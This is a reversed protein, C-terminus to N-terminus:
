ILLVCKNITLFIQQIWRNSLHLTRLYLDAATQMEVLREQTTAAQDAGAAQAAIQLNSINVQQENGLNQANNAQQAQLNLTAAQQRNQLNQMTTQQQQQASLMTADQTFQSQMVNMQQAMQATQSASTQRNALNAMRLQMSQTAQTLNAQQENTLNQAARQQLAQANSQAIPMASQIIANFLSDRGVTSASLGRAAMQNQVASVAPRAWIPTVGEDIGALLTEMQSSVLAETPLAAIAAQVEVPQTDVQATVSAPDEVIAASINTPINGVEAVMSAAAGKAETGTVARRMSADYGLTTIIQAAEGDTASVGTIAERQQKEAEPTAALTIQQGTVQDVMSKTDMTFDQAQAQAATEQAADRQATAVRNADTFEPGAATATQTVTEQAAQTPDVTGATAATMPTADVTQQLPATTATGATTTVPPPTVAATTVDAVNAPEAMKQVQTSQIDPNAYATDPKLQQGRSKIEDISKKKEQEPDFYTPKEAMKKNGTDKDTDQQPDNAKTQRYGTGYDFGTSDYDFDGDQGSGLTIPFEFEGGFNWRHFYIDKNTQYLNSLSHVNYGRKYTKGDLTTDRKFTGYGDLAGDKNDISTQQSKFWSPLQDPHKEKIVIEKLVDVHRGNSYSVRGGSSYNQRKIFGLNQLPDVSNKKFGLFELPDINNEVM